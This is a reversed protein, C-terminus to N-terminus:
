HGNVIEYLPDFCGRTGRNSLINNGAEDFRIKTALVTDWFPDDSIVICVKVISHDGGKTLLELNLM